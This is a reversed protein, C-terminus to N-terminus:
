TEAGAPASDGPRNALAAPPNEQEPFAGIVADRLVSDVQAQLSRASHFAQQILQQLVSHDELDLEDRALSLLGLITALPARVEHYGEYALRGLRQNSEQLLVEAAKRASIDVIAALTQTREEVVLPTLGIEVPFESGDARRAHLDRGAGMARRSPNHLFSARQAPHSGAADPPMLREVSLGLMEDRSFGFM